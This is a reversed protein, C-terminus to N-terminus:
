PTVSAHELQWYTAFTRPGPQMRFAGSCSAVCWKDRRPASAGPRPVTSPHGAADRRVVLGDISSPAFGSETLWDQVSSHRVEGSPRAGQMAQGALGHFTGRYAVDPFPAARARWLALAPGVVSVAPTTGPRPLPKVPWNPPRASLSCFRGVSRRVQAERPRISWV